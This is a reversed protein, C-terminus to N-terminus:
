ILSTLTFVAPPLYIRAGCEMEGVTKTVEKQLVGALVCGPLVVSIIEDTKVKDEMAKKSMGVSQFNEKKASCRM